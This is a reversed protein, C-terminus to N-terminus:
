NLRNTPPRPKRPKKPYNEKSEDKMDENVVHNTYANVPHQVPDNNNGTANNDGWSNMGAGIFAAILIFGTIKKSM